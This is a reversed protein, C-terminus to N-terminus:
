PASVRELPPLNKFLNQKPDYEMARSNPKSNLYYAFILQATSSHFIDWGIGGQIKGYRASVINGRDDKKTRVRFFYNQAPSALVGVMPRDDERYMQLVLKSEYGNTPASRPIRLISGSSDSMVSQIGDGDNPFTVTLAANFDQTVSTFKRELTFIFDPTIGKGYPAVWDGLELDFGVPKNCEPLFINWTKKAYMPVRTGIPKLIFEATPNWPQWKGNEVHEFRFEKIGCSYYGTVPKIGCYVYNNCVMASNILALGDKGTVTNVQKESISGAIPVPSSTQMFSAGVQVGSVPNGSEDVVKCAVQIEGVEAHCALTSILLLGLFVKTKNKM